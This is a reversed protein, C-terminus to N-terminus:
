LGIIKWSEKEKQLVLTKETQDQYNSSRYGQTFTVTLPGDPRQGAIRINSIDVKIWAKFRNKLAKDRQWTKRTFGNAEFNESYFDMYANVDGISTATNEWATKWATLFREM